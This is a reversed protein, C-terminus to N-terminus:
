KMHFKANKKDKTKLIDCNCKKLLIVLKYIIIKKVNKPDKIDNAKDPFYKFNSPRIIINKINFKNM